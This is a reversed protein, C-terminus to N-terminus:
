RHPAHRPSRVIRTSEVGIVLLAAMIDPLTQAARAVIAIATLSTPDAAVGFTTALYVFTVERVVLGSPIIIAATGVIWALLISATGILIDDASYPTTAMLLTIVSTTQVLTHFFAFVFLHVTEMKKSLPFNAPLTNGTWKGIREIFRTLGTSVAIVAATIWGTLAIAVFAAPYTPAALLALGTAAVCLVMFVTNDIGAVLMAGVRKSEILQAQLVASWIKGPIYKTVQAVLQLYCARGASIKIGQHRLFSNFSLGSVYNALLSLLTSIGLLWPNATALMHAITLRHQWAIFLLAGM